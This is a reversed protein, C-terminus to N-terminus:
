IKENILSSIIKTYCGEYQYFDNYVEKGKIMLSNIKEESISTLIKDIDNIQSEHILVGYESFDIKDQFPLLPDDFVYVPISGHQLSECIRFSTQGYGRPCLSFLSRQMINKFYHYGMSESILYKGDTKLVDYLKERIQHRGNISGMFSCFIDKNTSDVGTPLCNLPIPYCKDKYKGYGGQNFILIDIYKLDNLICDDYQVITFYKKSSDLNDLFQQLDSINDNGYNRNIYFQTWFIPLYERSLEPKNEYYSKLYDKSLPLLKANKDKLYTVKPILMNM